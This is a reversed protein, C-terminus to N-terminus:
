EKIKDWFPSPITTIEENFKKEREEWIKIVEKLNKEFSDTQLIPVSPKELKEKLSFFYFASLLVATLFLILFSFFFSEARKTLFLSITKKIKQLINKLRNTM